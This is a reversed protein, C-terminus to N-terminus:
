KKPLKSIIKFAKIDVEMFSNTNNKNVNTSEVLIPSAFNASALIGMLLLTTFGTKFINM